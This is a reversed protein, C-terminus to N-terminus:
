LHHRSSPRGAPPMNRVIVEHAESVGRHYGELWFARGFTQRDALDTYFSM